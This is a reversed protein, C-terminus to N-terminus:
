LKIFRCQYNGETTTAKVIYTGTALHTVDIAIDQEATEFSAAANRGMLDVIQITVPAGKTNSKLRLTISNSAPNPFLNIAETSPLTIDGTVVPVTFPDASTATIGNVTIGIAGTKAGTPVKTTITTSTPTGVVEATVGNFTVTNNAAVPDFNTGTITVATGVPGSTPSFSSITPPVVVVFDTSSAATQNAVSVSIKGTTASAPVTVTISTSTPTGTITAPIGNFTVVDYASNTQFNSGTITVSTGVVGSTPTFSTITPQFDALPRKYVGTGNTGAFVFTSNGVLSIVNTNQLSTNVPIWTAGNDGSIFVGYGSSGAIILSGSQIFADIPKTNIGTNAATWTAGNDASKFVGNETGAFILNGTM